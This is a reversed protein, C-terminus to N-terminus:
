QQAQDQFVTPLHSALEVDVLLDLRHQLQFFKAVVVGPLAKSFTKLYKRNLDVRQREFELSRATLSAAQQDTLSTFSSAYEKIVAVRQDNIKSQDAEYQRYIPWFAASDKESFQM